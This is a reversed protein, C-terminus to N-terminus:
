VKFGYIIISYYLTSLILGATTIVGTKASVFNRKREKKKDVEKLATNRETQGSLYKYLYLNGFIILLDYFILLAFDFILLKYVPLDYFSYPDICAHYVLFPHDGHNLFYNVSNFLHFALFLNPMLLLPWIFKSKKFFPNLSQSIYIARLWTTETMYIISGVTLLTPLTSILLCAKKSIFNM